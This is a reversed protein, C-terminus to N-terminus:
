KGPIEDGYFEHNKVRVSSTAQTSLVGSAAMTLRGADRVRYYASGLREASKVVEPGFGRTLQEVVLPLGRQGRVQALQERLAVLWGQFVNRRSPDSQWQDAFNENPQVPNVVSWGRGDRIIFEEMTDAMSGVTKFLSKEGRYAHAALTTILISAPRSEPAGIFFLDRHRKLAQVARQLTTKVEYEPVQELTSQRKEALEARKRIFEIAMRDHFWAAYRIPDSSLWRPYARDALLIGSPRSAPDPISPLVDMHLRLGEYNLTWCRGNEHCSAQRDGLRAYRALAAGVEAKLRDQTTSEKSIDRVCVLDIDFEGSSAIPRVVTNLRLSGQAYVDWATATRTDGYRNLFAGVEAYLSRARAAHEPPIDLEELTGGLLHDLLDDATELRSDVSIM